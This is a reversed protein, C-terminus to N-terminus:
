LSDVKLRGIRFCHLWLNSVVRDILLLM